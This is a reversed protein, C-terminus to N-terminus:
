LEARAQHLEERVIDEAQTNRITVAARMAEVVWKHPLWGNGGAGKMYEHQEDCNYATTRAITVLQQTAIDMLHQSM